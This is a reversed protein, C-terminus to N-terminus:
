SSEETAERAPGPAGKLVQRIHTVVESPLAPKAIFATCGALRANQFMEDSSDATIAIVPIHALDPDRKLDATAELGDMGPLRIDMLVVDPRLLRALRVAEHGNIATAVSFGAYNLYQAYLERADLADEVLLIVTRSAAAGEPEPAATVIVDTLPRVTRTVPDYTEHKVPGQLQHIVLDGECQEAMARGAEWAHFESIYRALVHGDERRVDWWGLANRLVEITSRPM